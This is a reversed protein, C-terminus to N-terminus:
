ALFYNFGLPMTGNLDGFPGISRSTKTVCSTCIRCVFIQKNLLCLDMFNTCRHGDNGSALIGQRM